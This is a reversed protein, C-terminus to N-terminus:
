GISRKIEDLKNLILVLADLESIPTNTKTNMVALGTQTVVTGVEYTQKEKKDSVKTEEPM